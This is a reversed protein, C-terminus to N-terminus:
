HDAPTPSLSPEHSEADHVMKGDATFKTGKLSNREIVELKEPSRVYLETPAPANILSSTVILLLVSGTMVLAEPTAVLCLLWLIGWM